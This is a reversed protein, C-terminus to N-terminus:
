DEKNLEDYDRNLRLDENDYDYIYLEPKCGYNAKKNNAEFIKIVTILEENTLEIDFETSDDCGRNEIKYKKMNKNEKRRDLEYQLEEIKKDVLHPNNDCAYFVEGDDYDYFGYEVNYFNHHKKLFKITNEIHSIEMDSIKIKKHDKTEWWDKEYPYKM